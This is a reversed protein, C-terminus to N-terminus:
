KRSFFRDLSAQQLKGSMKKNLARLDQYTKMAQDAMGNQEYYRAATQLTARMEQDSVKVVNLDDVDDDDVANTLGQTDNSMNYDNVISVILDEEEEYCALDNCEFIQQLYQRDNDDDCNESVIQLVAEMEAEELFQQEPVTNTTPATNSLFGCHKSCKQITERSVTPWAAAVSLMADLVTLKKAVKSAHQNGNQEMQELLKLLLNKRVTAKFARIVGGDLPQTESTTNKPLMKLKINTLLDETDKDLVHVPANDVFLLINRQKKAMQDNLDLVYMNFLDTTMWAKLSNVYDSAIARLNTNKFARPQESKGIVLPKLKEGKISCTLAVTIREKALKGGKCTEGKEVLLRAPLARYFFATEDMNFIDADNYGQCVEPLNQKWNLVTEQNVVASEGCIAYSLVNHRKKWKDLWGISAKFDTNLNLTAQMEKAKIQLIPGTIIYGLARAGQFWRYLLKNIISNPSKRQTTAYHLSNSALIDVRTKKVGQVCGTSVGFKDAAKRISLGSDLAGIIELKLEYTIKRKAM